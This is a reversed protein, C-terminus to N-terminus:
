ATTAKTQAKEIRNIRGEFGTVTGDSLGLELAKRCIVIAANFAQTDNLLTALHLFGSSKLETDKGQEASAAQFLAIYEEALQAGYNLYDASKRQKYCEAIMNQLATYRASASTAGQYEEFARVLTVNAWAGPAGVESRTNSAPEADDQADAQEDTPTTGLIIVVEENHAAPIDVEIIDTDLAVSISAPSETERPMLEAEVEIVPEVEAVGTDEVRKVPEPEVREPEAASFIPAEETPVVPKVSTPKPKMAEQEEKALRQARLFLFVGVAILIFVVLIKM